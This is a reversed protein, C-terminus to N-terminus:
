RKKKKATEVEGKKPVYETGAAAEERAKRNPIIVTSDDPDGGLSLADLDDGLEAVARSSASTRTSRRGRAASQATRKSKATELPTASAKGKTTTAKPKAVPKATPFESAESESWEGVSDREFESPSEAEEDDDDIFDDEDSDDEELESGSEDDEAASATEGDDTETADVDM